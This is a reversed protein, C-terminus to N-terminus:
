QLERLSGVHDPHAHTILIRKVNHPKGGYATIQDLIAGAKGPISTDIITLGDPDRIVYVRGVLMNSLNYVNPIVRQMLYRERNYSAIERSREAFMPEAGRGVHIM